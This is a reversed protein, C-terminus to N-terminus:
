KGNRFYLVGRFAFILVMGIAVYEVVRVLDVFYWAIETRSGDLRSVCSFAQGLETGDSTEISVVERALKSVPPCFLEVPVNYIRNGAGDFSWGLFAFIGVFPWVSDGNFGFKLPFVMDHYFWLFGAGFVILAISALGEIYNFALKLAIMALFFLIAAAILMHTAHRELFDDKRARWSSAGSDSAGSGAKAKKDKKAKSAGAM